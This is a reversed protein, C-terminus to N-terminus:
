NGIVRDEVGRDFIYCTGWAHARHVIKIYVYNHMYNYICIILYVALLPGGVAPMGGHTM